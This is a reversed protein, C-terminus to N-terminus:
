AAHDTMELTDSVNIVGGQAVPAVAPAAVAPAAVAPAADAAPTPPDVAVPMGNSDADLVKGQNLQAIVAQAHDDPVHKLDDPKIGFIKEIDEFLMKLKASFLM